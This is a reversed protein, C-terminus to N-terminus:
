EENDNSTNKKTSLLLPLLAAYSEDNDYRLIQLYDTEGASKDQFVELTNKAGIKYVVYRLNLVFNADDDRKYDHGPNREHTKWYQAINLASLEPPQSNVSSNQIMYIQGSNDGEYEKYIYQERLNKMKDTIKERIVITNHLSKYKFVVSSNRNIWESVHEHKTLIISNGSKFDSDTPLLGTIFRNPSDYIDSPKLGHSYVDEIAFFNKIRDYLNKSVHIKNRYFFFPWIKTMASLREDFSNLRPLMMNNCNRKPNPVSHFIVEDEIVAHTDWWIGFNPFEFGNWDERWLWNIIATLVEVNNSRNILETISDFSKANVDVKPQCLIKIGKKKGNFEIWVGDDDIATYDFKAMTNALSKLPANKKTGGTYVQFLIENKEDLSKIKINRTAPKDGDREVILFPQTPPIILTWEDFLLTTTKGCMDIKQGILRGINSFDYNKWDITSYPDDYCTEGIPIGPTKEWEYPHCSSDLLKFLSEFFNKYINSFRKSYNKNTKDSSVILECPPVQEIKGVSGYNKYLCIINKDNNHRIHTYRCRPVELSAILLNDEEDSLPNKRGINSTFVFIQIDFIIELGRYYLYPDIFTKPNLISEVIEEDSMDYLEQKYIDPPLKAMLERVANVNDNIETLNLLSLERGPIPSAGTAILVAIIASNLFTSEHEKIVVGQKSFKFANSSDYSVSLFNALADGLTGYVSYQNISETTGKRSVGKIISEHSTKPKNTELCCPLYKIRGTEDQSNLKMDVVPTSERPCVVLISKKFGWEAPPFRVAERGYARYEEEEENEIIIPQIKPQCLRSYYKGYTHDSNESRSKSEHTFFEGAKKNLAEITKTYIRSKTGVLSTKLDEDSIGLNIFHTLLRSFKYLFSPLMDKSKSKFDITFGTVSEKKLTPISIRFNSNSTTVDVGEMMENSFDRFFVFFNEKSCWARAIEDVYFLVSAIPDTILFEYISYYGIVKDVIFHINGSIRRSGSKEELFLMSMFNSIKRVRDDSTRPNVTIITIKEEFDFITIEGTKTLIALSNPPLKIKNIHNDDYDVPFLTSLKYIIKSNPNSYLIAPYRNNTELNNFITLADNEDVERGKENNNNIFLSFTQEENSEVIEYNAPQYTDLQTLYIQIKTGVKLSNEKITRVHERALLVSTQLTSLNTTEYIKKLFEVDQTSFSEHGDVMYFGVIDDRSLKLELGGELKIGDNFIKYVSELSTANKFYDEYNVGNEILTHYTNENLAKIHRKSFENLYEM